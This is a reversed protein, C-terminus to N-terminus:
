RPLTLKETLATEIYGSRTQGAGEAAEDADRLLAPDIMINIRVRPAKVARPVILHWTAGQAEEIVEPDSQLAEYARPEPIPDREARMWALHASLAERGDGLAEELTGGASVCGPLDPFSVGYASDDDKHILAWYGDM